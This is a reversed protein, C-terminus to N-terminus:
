TPLPFTGIASGGAVVRRRRAMRFAMQYGQRKTGWAGPRICAFLGPSSHTGNYAANIAPYWNEIPGMTSYRRTYSSGPSNIKVTRSLAYRAAGRILYRHDRLKFPGLPGVHTCRQDYAIFVDLFTAQRTFAFLGRSPADTAIQRVSDQPSTM